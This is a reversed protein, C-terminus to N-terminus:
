SRCKKGRSVSNTFELENLQEKLNKFERSIRDSSRTKALYDAYRQYEDNSDVFDIKSVYLCFDNYAELDIQELKKKYYRVISRDNFRAEALVKKYHLRFYELGIGNSCRMKDSLFEGDPSVYSQSKLAYTAIYYAMSPSAPSLTSFGSPWLQELETSRFLPYGSPANKFFWVSHPKKSSPYWGFIIAHFHLRGHKGGHEMSVMYKIKTPSIKKRLRKMFNQFDAYSAESIGRKADDYTLLISCNDDSLSLEHEVRTAWHCARRSLCEPCDGCPVRILLSSVDDPNERVVSPRLCM